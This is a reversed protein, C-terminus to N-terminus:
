KVCPGFPEPHLSTAVLPLHSVLQRRPAAPAVYPAHTWTPTLALYGLVHETAAVWEDIASLDWGRVWAVDEERPHAIPPMSPVAAARARIHLEAIAPLDDTVAPRLILAASM